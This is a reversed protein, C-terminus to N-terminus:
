RLSIGIAANEDHSALWYHYKAAIRFLHRMEELTSLFSTENPDFPRALERFFRYLEGKSVTIATMPTSFTNRLAHRVNGPISVTDGANLTEWGASPGEAQFVEISGELLYFVEPDPHSHLPIVSGPHITGCMVSMDDNIQEPTSLFQITVGLVVFTNRDASTNPKTKTEFLTNM